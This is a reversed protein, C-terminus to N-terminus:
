RDRIGFTALQEKMRGVMLATNSGEVDKELCSFGCYCGQWGGHPLPYRVAHPASSITNYCVDCKGKFWNIKQDQESLLDVRYGDIDQEEFENCLLMRCGGYKSCENDYDIEDNHHSYITNVPGFEQFILTEDFVVMDVLGRLMIIKENITSIAYQSIMTDQIINIDKTSIKIKYKTFEKLLIEVAEKVSPINRPVIPLEKATLTPNIWSPITVVKTLGVQLKFFDRLQYNDYEEEEFDDTLSYLYQWDEHTINPFIVLMKKAIMVADNDNGLNILEVYYDCASRNPFCSFVFNLLEINENLLPNLYLNTIAPLVDIRTQNLIDIINVCAKKNQNLFCKILLHYTLKRSRELDLNKFNLTELDQEIDEHQEIKNLILKISM